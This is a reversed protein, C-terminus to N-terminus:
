AGVKGKEPPADLVYSVFSLSGTMGSEIWTASVQIDGHDSFNGLNDQAGEM